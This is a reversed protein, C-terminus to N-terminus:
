ARKYSGLPSTILAATVIDSVLIAALLCFGAFLILARCLSHPFLRERERVHDGDLM